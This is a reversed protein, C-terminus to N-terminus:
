GADAKGAILEKGREHAQKVIPAVQKVPVLFPHGSQDGGMMGGGGEGGSTGDGMIGVFVGTHNFVPLGPSFLQTSICWMTRPQNVKGTIQVTAFYPAFDYDESLRALALLEEGITPENTGTLKLPQLKLDKTDELMVFALQLSSDKAALVADHEEFDEGMVVRIDTPSAEIEMDEMGGGGGGRGGRGRGRMQRRMQNAMDMPGGPIMILGDDSVVIGDIEVPIERDMGGGGGGMSVNMIFKVTVVSASHESLLQKYPNDEALTPASCTIAAFLALLVPIRTL